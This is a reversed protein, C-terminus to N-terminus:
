CFERMNQRRGRLFIATVDDLSEPRRAAIAGHLEHLLAVDYSDQLVDLLGVRALAPELRYAAEHLVRHLDAHNGAIRGTVDLEGLQGLAVAVLCPAFRLDFSEAGLM